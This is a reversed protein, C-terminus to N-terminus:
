HHRHKRNCQGGQSRNRLELEAAFVRENRQDIQRERRRGDNGTEDENQQEAAIAPEAREQLRVADVDDERHGSDHERRNEHGKREHGPLENGDHLRLALVRGFM